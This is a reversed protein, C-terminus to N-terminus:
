VLAKTPPIKERNLTKLFDKWGDATKFSYLWADLLTKTLRIRQM